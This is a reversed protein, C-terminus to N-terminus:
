EVQRVLRGPDNGITQGAEGMHDLMGSEREKHNNTRKGFLRVILPSFQAILFFGSTIAVGEIGMLRYTVFNLYLYTVGLAARWFANMGKGNVPYLRREQKMSRKEYKTVTRRLLYKAARTQGEGFEIWRKVAKVFDLLQNVKTSYAYNM